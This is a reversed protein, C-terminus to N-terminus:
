WNPRPPVVSENGDYYTIEFQAGDPIEEIALKSCEGSAESGFEEIVSILDPDTRTSHECFSEYYFLESPIEEIVSGLDQTCAKIGLINLEEPEVRINEAHGGQHPYKTQKYFTLDIGKKKAFAKLAKPSLSFGGFCNNYAVKM